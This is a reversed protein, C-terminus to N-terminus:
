NEKRIDFIQLQNSDKRWFKRRANGQYKNGM